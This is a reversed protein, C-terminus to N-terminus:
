HGYNCGIKFEEDTHPNTITKDEFGCCGRGRKEKYERMERENSKKAVRINDVYLLSRKMEKIEGQLWKATELDYDFYIEMDWYYWNEIAYKIICSNCYVGKKGRFYSEQSPYVMESESYSDCINCQILTDELIDFEQRYFIWDSFDQVSYEFFTSIKM